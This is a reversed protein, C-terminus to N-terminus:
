LNAPGNFQTNVFHAEGFESDAFDVGANFQAFSFDVLSPFNRNPFAVLDPFWVGVFKLYNENEPDLRKALATDFQEKKTSDPFHLVCYPRGNLEKYFPEHCQGEVGEGRCGKETIDNV